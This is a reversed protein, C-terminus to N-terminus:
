VSVQKGRMNWSRKESTKLSRYNRALRKRLKRSTDLNTGMVAEVKETRPLKTKGSSFTKFRM